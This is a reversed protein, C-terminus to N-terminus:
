QGKEEEGDVEEEEVEEDEEEMEEELDEKLFFSAIATPPGMSQSLTHMHLQAGSRQLHCASVQARLAKEVFPM